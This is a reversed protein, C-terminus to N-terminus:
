TATTLLDQFPDAHPIDDTWFGYRHELVRMVPHAYTDAYHLDLDWRRLSSMAVMQIRTVMVDRTIESPSIRPDDPQEERLSEDFFADALHGAREATIPGHRAEVRHNVTLNMVVTLLHWDNWGENRLDQFLTRVREDQLLEPLTLRIPVPLLEYREALISHAKDVTYGPGPGSRADLQSSGARPNRREADAIPRNRTDSLPPTSRTRFRALERYPRGIELNHFLGNRAARDMLESFPERGLLSNGLLVQFALHVVGHRVHEEDDDDVVVDQPEAPLLLLWLRRDGDVRTMYTDTPQRDTPYVRIEIDVDQPIIVADLSAFEVLLIQLTSAFDEMALVTDQENRGHITWLAGLARFAIIREQGVDSFPAGAKDSLWDLWEQETRSVTLEEVTRRVLPSLHGQDLIDWIAPEFDPRVQRAALTTSVQYAAAEPVYAHRDLNAADPAYAAHALSAISALDASAVWAGVLHDQNSAAFLAMPVFERDSSDLSGRAIAAMALAYKKAALYMGLACYIDVINAMARLAGYLTDGHFWNVKAQHFERLADLLRGAKQFATARQRCKDGVAADGEQRKVAEDLGDCVQRYLPHDRLSPALLDVVTSFTDIPYAPADPLLDSLELLRRMGADLDVLPVQDLHQQLAGQDIADMLAEYQQDIEALTASGRVQADTYDIHLALHASVQLLGARTNPGFDRELLQDVHHHLRPTWAIIESLPIDTHNLMAATTCFQVLVSGDFLISPDDNLEIESMFRRILPEAPRLDAKGRSRAAVIEYIAHLRVEADATQEALRAMLTLWGDLDGRAPGSPVAHRLGHRLDFMDGLNSPARLPEQWYQRLEVYWVPLDLDSEDAQDPALEAPLHLYQHAIWYLDPEALLEALAFGDIIELGVKYHEQTWVELDHRLRVPVETAAFIYIRDVHTGQACISKIDGQFKAKLKDRQITGAFVVVDQSALALFGLAFPLEETLYTRFTEFDRGQDGGASVPGTAPLVNSAIRRRVVQRCLDEFSHHGNEGSLLSFAVRIM